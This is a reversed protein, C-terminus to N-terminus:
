FNRYLFMSAPLVIILFLFRCCIGNWLEVAYPVYRFKVSLIKRTYVCFFKCGGIKDELDDIVSLFEERIEEIQTSLDELLDRM